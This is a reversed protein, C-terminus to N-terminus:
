RLRDGVAAVQAILALHPIGASSAAAGVAALLHDLGQRVVVVVDGVLEELALLDAASWSRGRQPGRAPTCSRAPGTRSARLFLPTWGISSATM